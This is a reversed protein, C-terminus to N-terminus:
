AKAGKVGFPKPVGIKEILPVLLNGFLIAYSVGEATSGLLRFIATLAGLLIAYIWQGRATVPSTVYDNAMFWAGLMLGGGLLQALFYHVTPLGEGRFLSILVVTVLTSGIYILPIRLNIVRRILMYAAGLLIAVVSVEGICGAHTGLFMSLLDVEEGANAMALPTAGTVGDIGAPYSTMQGGFSVLLFCRAALAPNVFNQGIGGFLQKVVLISFVSGVVAIWLPITAPLNYSLLLGTVLASLDGVTVPRHMLKEYLYETLMCTVVCVAIVLLARWGFNWVGFAGAPLLAIAVDRMLDSTETSTRIHPSMSVHNLESM